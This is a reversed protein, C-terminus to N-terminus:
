KQRYLQRYRTMPRCFQHLHQFKEKKSTIASQESAACNSEKRMIRHM